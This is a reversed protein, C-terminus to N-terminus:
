ATELKMPDHIMLEETYNVPSGWKPKYSKPFRSCHKDDIPVVLIKRTLDESLKTGVKIKKLLDRIDELKKDNLLKLYAGSYLEPMKKDSSQSNLYEIVKKRNRGSAAVLKNIDSYDQKEVQYLTCREAKNRGGDNRVLYGGKGAAVSLPQPDHGAAILLHLDLTLHKQKARHKVLNKKLVHCGISHDKCIELGMTVNIKKFFVQEPSERVDVFDAYRFWEDQRKKPDIIGDDNSPNYKLYALCRQEGGSIIFGTNLAVSQQGTVGIPKFEHCISGPVIVWDTLQESSFMVKFLAHVKAYDKSSYQMEGETEKKNPRFFFEPAVFLKLVSSQKFKRNTEVERFAENVVHAFKLLRVRLDQSEIKEIDTVTIGSPWTQEDKTAPLLDAKVEQWSPQDVNVSTKIAYYITIFESYM